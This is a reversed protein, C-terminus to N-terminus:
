SRGTRQWQTAGQRCATCSCMATRAAAALAMAAEEAAEAATGAEEAAVAATEEEEEAAAAEAAKGATSGVRVMEEAGMAAAAAGMAEGAELGEGKAAWDMGEVWGMEVEGVAVWGAAVAGAAVREELALIAASDAAAAEAVAPLVGLEAPPVGQEAAARDTCQTRAPQEALGPKPRSARM